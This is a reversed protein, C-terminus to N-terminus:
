IRFQGPKGAPILFMLNDPTIFYIWGMDSLRNRATAFHPTIEEFKEMTTKQSQTINDPTPIYISINGTESHINGTTENEFTLEILKALHLIEYEVRKLDQSLVTSKEEVLKSLSEKSFNENEKQEVSFYLINVWVYPPNNWYSYFNSHYTYNISKSM